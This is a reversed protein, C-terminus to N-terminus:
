LIDKIRDIKNMLSNVKVQLDMDSVAVYLGDLGYRGGDDATFAKFDNHPDMVEVITFRHLVAGDGVLFVINGEFIDKAKAKRFVGCTNLDIKVKTSKM